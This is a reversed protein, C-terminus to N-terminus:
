AADESTEDDSTEGEPTEEEDFYDGYLESLAPTDRVYERWAKGVADVDVCKACLVLMNNQDTGQYGRSYCIKCKKDSRQAAALERAKALHEDPLRPTTEM